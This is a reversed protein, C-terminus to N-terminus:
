FSYEVGVTPIWAARLGDDNLPFQVNAILLFRGFPNWKTGVSAALINDGIGDGHLEHSGLFEGAFTIRRTGVDFGIVYELANQSSRDINWEFGFNLHPTFNLRPLVFGSFTRSLIVLPRITTDGTGLFDDEDGTALKVLMAAALDVVDSKLVHYKARLVIDGIGIADGSAADNPSEPGGVFTHVAPFPNDPSPVIEARARVDMDVRVIPILIGIDLRDTLGYAAAMALMQVRIDLDVHIRITDLEFSTRVDDPPITDPQHRAVVMLDNLDQGNFEDYRFATFSAHLSFKGRGLTSAREAFLPGLTETTRVFTGLASEFSFTFGGVSSSFPFVAIEAGIQDNLRTIAAATDFVFHPAHTPFPTGAPPDALTIGDGGYLGPILNRLKAASDTASLFITWVIVLASAVAKM